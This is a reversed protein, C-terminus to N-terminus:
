NGKKKGKGKTPYNEEFVGEEALSSEGDFFDEGGEGTIEMNELDMESASEIDGEAEEGFGEVLDEDSNLSVEAESFEEGPESLEIDDDIDAKGGAMIEM